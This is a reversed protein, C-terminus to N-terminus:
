LLDGDQSHLQVQDLLLLPLLLLKPLLRLLLELEVPLQLRALNLPLSLKTQTLPVEQLQELNGAHTRGQAQMPFPLLDGM